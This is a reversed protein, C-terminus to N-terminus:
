ATESGTGCAIDAVLSKPPLTDFFRRSALFAELALTSRYPNERRDAFYPSSASSVSFFNKTVM